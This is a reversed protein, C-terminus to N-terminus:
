PSVEKTKIRLTGNVKWKAHQSDEGVKSPVLIDFNEFEYSIEANRATLKEFLGIALEPWTHTAKEETPNLISSM